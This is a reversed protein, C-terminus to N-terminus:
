SLDKYWFSGVAQNEPQSASVIIETGGGGSGGSEATLFPLTGVTTTGDGVKLKTSGDAMFYVCVEGRLPIFTSAVAEWEAETSTKQMIRSNLEKTAM